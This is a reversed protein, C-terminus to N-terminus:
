GNVGGPEHAFRAGTVSQVIFWGGKTRGVSDFMRISLWPCLESMSIQAVNRVGGDSFVDLRLADLTQCVNRCHIISVAAEDVDRIGLVVDVFGARATRQRAAANSITACSAAFWISSAYRWACRDRHVQDGCSSTKAFQPTIVNSVTKRLHEFFVFLM